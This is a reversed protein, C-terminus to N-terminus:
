HKTANNSSIMTLHSAGTILASTHKSSTNKPLVTRATCRPHNKLTLQKQFVFFWLFTRVTSLLSSLKMRARQVHCARGRSKQQQKASSNRRTHHEHQDEQKNLELEKDLSEKGQRPFSLNRQHRIVSMWVKPSTMLLTRPCHTWLPQIHSPSTNPVCSAVRSDSVCCALFASGWRRLGAQSPPQWRKPATDTNTVPVAESESSNALFASSVLWLQYTRGRLGDSQRVSVSACPWM